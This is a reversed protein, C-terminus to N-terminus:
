GSGTEPPDSRDPAPPAPSRHWTLTLGIVPIMGIVWAAMVLAWLETAAAAAMVVIGLGAGLVASRPLIRGRRWSDRFLNTGPASPWLIPVLGGLIFLGSVVGLVSPHPHLHIPGPHWRHTLLDVASAVLVVPGIAAFVVGIVRLLPRMQRRQRALHSDPIWRWPPIRRLPAASTESAALFRDRFGRFNTALLLGITTAFLGWFVGIIAGAVSDDSSAPATPAFAALLSM